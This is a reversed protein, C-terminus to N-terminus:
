PCSDHTAWSRVHSYCRSLGTCSYVPSQPAVEAHGKSSKVLMLRATQIRVRKRTWLKADWQAPAPCRVSGSAVAIMVVTHRKM